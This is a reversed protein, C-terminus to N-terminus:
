SLLSTAKDSITSTYGGGSNNDVTPVYDDSLGSLIDEARNSVSASETVHTQPTDTINQKIKNNNKNKVQSVDSLVYSIVDDIMRENLGVEDLKSRMRSEVLKVSADKKTSVKKIPKKKIKQTPKSEEHEEVLTETELVDEANEIIHEDMNDLFKMFGSM